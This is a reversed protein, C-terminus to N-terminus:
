APEAKLFDLVRRWQIRSGPRRDDM